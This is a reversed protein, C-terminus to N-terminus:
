QDVKCILLSLASIDHPWFWASPPLPEVEMQRWAEAKGAAWAWRRRLAKTCPLSLHFPKALAVIGIQFFKFFQGTRVFNYNNV